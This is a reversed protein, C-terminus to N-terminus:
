SFSLTTTCSSADTYIEEAAEKNGDRVLEKYGEIKACIGLCGAGWIEPYLRAKGPTM